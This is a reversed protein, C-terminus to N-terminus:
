APARHPRHRAAAPRRNPARAGLPVLLLLFYRLTQGYGTVPVDPLRVTRATDPLPPAATQPAPGWRSWCCCSTAFR